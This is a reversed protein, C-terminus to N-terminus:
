NLTYEDMIFVIGLGFLGFSFGEVTSHENDFIRYGIEILIFENKASWNNFFGIGM